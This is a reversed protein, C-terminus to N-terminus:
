NQIYSILLQCYLLPINDTDWLHATKKRERVQCSFQGLIVYVFRVNQHLAPINLIIRSRSKNNSLCTKKKVPMKHM